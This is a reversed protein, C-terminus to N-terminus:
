SWRAPSAGYAGIPRELTQGDMTIPPPAVVLDGHPSPLRLTASTMALPARQTSPLSLLERAAGTLSSRVVGGRHDALLRLAAAAMRYGTAHDLAQVPLAGPHETTGCRWGIGTAAQVISDFGRRGAWPGHEGWASLSIVVLGPHEAALADPDLGFPTLAGPRYGLVVVDAGSLLAGLTGRDTHLDLAASRKGMGNSLYAELLEPLQPADIRLVDAGLCALLQSCTPGAIVRTLDLVRLGDMPMSAPPLSPREGSMTTTTWPDQATAVAQPHERWEAETRAAVAIGGRATLEDEVEAAPLRRLVDALDDRGTVGFTTEIASRHHPYNGHLRVWGDASEFFGSLPAWAEPQHGNIRLHEVAAFSSTVLDPTTAFTSTSGRAAALDQAADAADVVSDWAFSSVDLPGEWLAGPVTTM